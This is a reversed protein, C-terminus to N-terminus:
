NTKLTKKETLPSFNLFLEVGWTSNETPPYQSTSTSFVKLTPVTGTPLNANARSPSGVLLVWGEAGGSSPGM